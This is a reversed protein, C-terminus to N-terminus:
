VIQYIVIPFRMSTRVSTPVEVGSVTMIAGLVPTALLIPLVILKTAVILDRIVLLFIANGVHVCKTRTAPLIVPIKAPVTLCFLTDLIAVVSVVTANVMVRATTKVNPLVTVFVEPIALLSGLNAAVPEMVSASATVLVPSLNEKAVRASANSRSTDQQANALVTVNAHEEETASLETRPQVPYVVANPVMDEQFAPALIIANVAVSVPAVVDERPVVVGVVASKQIKTQSIVPGQIWITATRYMLIIWTVVGAVLPIPLVLVVAVM